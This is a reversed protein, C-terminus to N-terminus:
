WAACDPCTPDILPQHATVEFTSAEVVHLQFVGRPVEAFALADAKWRVLAAVIDLGPQPFPTPRFGAPGLDDTRLAGYVEPASSLRLFHRDICTMCPGADPLLVPGVYARALPGTSAWLWPQGARRQARGFACAAAYDLTDQCFVTLTGATAADASDTLRDRWAAEGDIVLRPPQPAPALAAPADILVREGYLDRVLARATDRHADPVAQLAEGVPAGHEFADLLTPGWHDIGDGRLTYRFAEGGVLRLVGPARAVTFPLALRARRADISM